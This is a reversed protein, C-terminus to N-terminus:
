KKYDVLCFLVYFPIFDVMWTFHLNTCSWILYEKYFDIELVFSQVANAESERLLLSFYFRTRNWTWGSKVLKCYTQIRCMSGLIPCCSPLIILSHPVSSGPSRYLTTKELYSNSDAICYPRRSRRHVFLHYGYCVTKRCIRNQKPRRTGLGHTRAYRSNIKRKYITFYCFSPFYLLFLEKMSSNYPPFTILILLLFLLNQHFMCYM